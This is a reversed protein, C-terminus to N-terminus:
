VVSKRDEKVQASAGTTLLAAAITLGIMTRFM